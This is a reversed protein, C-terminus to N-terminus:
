AVDWDYLADRAAKEPDVKVHVFSDFLAVVEDGLGEAEGARRCWERWAGAVAEERSGVWKGTWMDSKSFPAWQLVAYDIAFGEPCGTM